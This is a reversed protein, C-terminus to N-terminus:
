QVFLVKLQKVAEPSQNMVDKAMSQLEIGSTPEIEMKLKKAEALLEPDKTSKDYAVRLLNVRDVPTGPSTMMARAWEGGVLMAEAVRRKLPSTKYEDMVEYITPTDSIRSDRKRGAQVLFRVFGNKIWNLYPEGAFYTSVTTGMCNVEGKEFALSIAPSGPYGMVHEVKADITEELIRAIVYAASGVGSTGCKIPEKTKVVDSISKFPADSRAFMLMEDKELSGIWQYNPIDFKVESQGSLQSLYINNQAM